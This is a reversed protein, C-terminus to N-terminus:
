SAADLNKKELENPNLYVNLKHELQRSTIGEQISLLGEVMIHRIEIEKKSILKLKNSMPHWLVYGTFIGLLTAIFAAAISHGLMEIDNLNGLAAILGVVAGLVGLTPAYTGAQSFILAGKRHREQMASVKELLVDRAFDSDTTDVILELGQKLFLDDVKDIESELGLLGEKRSITAWGTFIDIIENKSPIKNSGGFVIKLLVPFKKIEEMPFSVFLAAATGGIIILYAAPNVLAVLSAGKLVMGVGIAILALIIGILTSPDRM